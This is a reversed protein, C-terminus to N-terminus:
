ITKEVVSKHPRIKIESLKIEPNKLVQSILLVYDNTLNVITSRDYFGTNYKFDGNITDGYEFLSVAIPFLAFVPQRIRLPIFMMAQSMGQAKSQATNNEVKSEDDQEKSTTEKPRNVGESSTHLQFDVVPGERKVIDTIFNFPVYNDYVKLLTNNTRSVVELFSPDGTMDVHVYQWTTFCGILHETEKQTRNAVPMSFINYKYGSFVHILNIFAAFMVTFLTVSNARSLGKLRKTLEPLVAIPVSDGDYSFKDPRHDRPLSAKVKGNLQKWYELKNELYEGTFREREWTAFDAYQLSLEPLPMPINLSYSQYLTLLEGQLVRLSVADTGSHNTPIYLAHEDKATLMTATLMLKDKFFNFTESAKERTIRSVEDKIESETLNNLDIVKLINDPVDNIIQYPEEDIIEYNTRLMEHRKVVEKIAKSFASINVRGKIIYGLAPGHPRTIDPDYLKNVVAMIGGRQVFSVPINGKREHPTIRDKNNTEKQKQLKLFMERKAALSSSSALEPM